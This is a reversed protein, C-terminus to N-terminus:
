IAYKRVEAWDELFQSKSYNEMAWQRGEDGHRVDPVATFGETADSIAYVFDDVTDLGGVGPRGTWAGHLGYFCLISKMCMIINSAACSDHFTDMIGCAIPSLAQSLLKDPLNPYYVDSVSEMRNQLGEDRWPTDGWLTADGIYVTQISPYEKLREFIDIIKHSNKFSAIKGMACVSLTKPTDNCFISEDIPDCLQVSEIGFMHFLKKQFPCNTTVASSADIIRNRFVEPFKVFALESCYLIKTRAPHQEYAMVSEELDPTTIEDALGGRMRFWLPEVVLIETDYSEEINEGVGVDYFKRWADLVYHTKGVIGGGPNKIGPPEDLNAEHYRDVTLYFINM